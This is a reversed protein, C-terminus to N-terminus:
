AIAVGTAVMIRLATAAGLKIPGLVIASAKLGRSPVVILATTVAWAVAPVTTQATSGNGTGRLVTCVARMSVDVNTAVSVSTVALSSDHLGLTGHDIGGLPNTPNWSIAASAIQATGHVCDFIELDGAFHHL